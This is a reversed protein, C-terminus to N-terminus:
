DAWTIDTPPVVQNYNNIFTGTGPAADYLVPPLQNWARVPTNVTHPIATSAATSNDGSSGFAEHISTQTSASEGGGLSLTAPELGTERQAIKLTLIGKDMSAFPGVFGALEM